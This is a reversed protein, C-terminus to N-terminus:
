SCPSFVLERRSSDGWVPVVVSWVLVAVVSKNEESRLTGQTPAALRQYPETASGSFIFLHNLADNISVRINIVHVHNVGSGLYQVIKQCQSAKKFGSKSFAPWIQM